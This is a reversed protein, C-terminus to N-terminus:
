NLSTNVLSGLQYRTFVLEEATARQEKTETGCKPCTVAPYVYHMGPTRESIARVYAKIIGFEDITLTKLLSNWKQLKARYTKQENDAFVNYDVPSLQAAETDIIYMNDIFPLYDIIDSYKERVKPDLTSVEFINYISPERFTIAVKDSLAVCETCYVGKGAPTAESRYLNTFKGKADKTEFKVMNMIDVDDTLFTEKCKPNVCDEPLYNAGKFAAIYVAFFYHDIDSYPTTKLWTAFDAPKPSVIHDYIMHFRRNLADKSSSDESYERMKELETGSFEKMLVISEQNPLVWKAVKSKQAKFISNANTAPKKLVTFSSLDLKKSVPKMKETALKRLHKLTEQPDADPEVDEKITDEDDLNDEKVTDAANDETTTVDLDIDPAALDEDDEVTAVPANSKEPTEQQEVVEEIDEMEEVDTNLMDNMNDETTEEETNKTEDDSLDDGLLDDVSDYDTFDEDNSDIDMFEDSVYSGDEDNSDGINDVPVDDEPDEIGLEENEKKLAEEEQKKASWELAEEKKKSVYQAFQSNPNNMDLIDKIPSEHINPDNKEAEKSEEAALANIDISKRPVGNVSVTSKGQANPIVVQHRNAPKPVDVRVDNGTADISLSGSRLQDLASM